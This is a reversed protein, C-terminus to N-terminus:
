APGLLAAATVDIGSLGPLPLLDGRRARQIDGYGTACPNRMVLVEDGALDVIWCEPVGATGYRASKTDRDFALTTESVEIVLLADAATPIASRYRRLPPRLIAVDPEPESLDDLRLPIQISIVARKGVVEHLMQEIVMVCYADQAGMPSMELVKGDILEVRPHDRFLGAEEMLHYEAVNFARWRLQAEM